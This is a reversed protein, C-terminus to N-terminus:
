MFCLWFNIVSVSQDKPEEEPEQWLLTTIPCFIPLVHSQANLQWTRLEYNTM